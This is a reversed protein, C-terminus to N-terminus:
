NGHKTIKNFYQNRKIKVKRISFYVLFITAIVLSSIGIILMITRLTGDHMPSQLSFIGDILGAIGFVLIGIYLCVNAVNLLFLQKIKQEIPQKDSMQDQILSTIENSTATSLNSTSLIMMGLSPMLTLPIVWDEM